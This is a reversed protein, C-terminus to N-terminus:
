FLVGGRTVSPRMYSVCVCVCVCVCLFPAVRKKMGFTVCLRLLIYIGSIFTSNYEPLSSM